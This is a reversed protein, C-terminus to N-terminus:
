KLGQETLIANLVDGAIRTAESSGGSGAAELLV